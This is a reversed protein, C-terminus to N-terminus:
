RTEDSLTRRFLDEFRELFEDFTQVPQNAQKDSKTADEDLDIDDEPEEQIANEAQAAAASSVKAGNKDVKVADLSAEFKKVDDM